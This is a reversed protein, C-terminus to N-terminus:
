CEDELNHGSHLAGSIQETESQRHTQNRASERADLAVM